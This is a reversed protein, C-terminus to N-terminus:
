RYYWHAPDSTVTDIAIGGGQPGRDLFVSVPIDQRDGRPDLQQSSGGTRSPGSGSVPPRGRWLTRRALPGVLAWATASTIARRGLACHFRSLTPVPVLPGRM